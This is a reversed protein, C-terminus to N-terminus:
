RIFIKPAINGNHRMMRMVSRIMEHDAVNVKSRYSSSSSSSSTVPSITTTTVMKYTREGELKTTLLLFVYLEIEFLIILKSVGGRMSAHPCQANAVALIVLFFGVFKLSNM